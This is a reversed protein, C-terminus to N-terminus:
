FQPVVNSPAPFFEAAISETVSHPLFEEMVQADPFPKIQHPLQFGHTPLETPGGVIGGEVPVHGLRFLQVVGLGAAATVVLSLPTTRLGGGVLRVCVLHYAGFLGIRDVLRQQGPQQRMNTNPINVGPFVLTGAVSFEHDEGAGCQRLGVWLVDHGRLQHLGGPQPGAIHGADVGAPHFPKRRVQQFARIGFRMPGAFPGGGHCILARREIPHRDHGVPQDGVVRNVRHRGPVHKDPLRQDGPIPAGVM